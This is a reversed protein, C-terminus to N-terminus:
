NISLWHKFILMCPQKYDFQNSNYQRGTQADFGYMAQMYYRVESPTVYHSLNYRLALDTLQEGRGLSAIEAMIYEVQSQM